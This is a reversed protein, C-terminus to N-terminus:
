KCVDPGGYLATCSIDKVERSFLIEEQIGGQESILISPTLDIIKKLAAELESIRWDREDM